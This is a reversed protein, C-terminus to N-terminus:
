MHMQSVMSQAHSIEQQTAMMPKMYGKRTLYDNVTKASNHHGNLIGHLDKRVSENSSELIASNAHEALHMYHHCMMEAMDRDTMQGQQPM